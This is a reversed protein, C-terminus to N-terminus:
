NIQKRVINEAVDYQKAADNIQKILKRVIQEMYTHWTYAKEQEAVFEDRAAGKWQDALAAAAAKAQDVAIRYTDVAANLNLACRTLEATNVVIREM